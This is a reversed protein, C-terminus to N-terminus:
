LSFSWKMMTKTTAQLVKTAPYCALIAMSMFLLTFTLRFFDM